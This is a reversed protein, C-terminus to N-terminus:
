EVDLDFSVEIDTEGGANTISGNSVEDAGKNPEHRLTVKLTGEGADGTSLQTKLGIPEDSADKDDYSIVVSSLTSEFFFQHDEGEEQVEPTIEDDPDESRNWLEITGNYTTNAALKGATIVPAGGGDGDADEFSLVVDDQGDAKLTYILTTIVEEQHPDEPDDPEGCSNLFVLSAMCVLLFPTKNMNRNNGAFSFM